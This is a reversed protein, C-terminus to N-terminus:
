RPRGRRGRRVADLVALTLLVGGLAAASGVLAVTRPATSAPAPAAIAAVGVAAPEGTGPTLVDPVDTVAAVPDVVGYGVRDNRGGAPAHATATIRDVVQRATLEPFRQRVLAATGAVFPAAFSTGQLPQGDLQDVLPIGPVPSLGVIDTGPAAVDVWPGNVTFPAPTGDAQVAGVTLVYDDWWAPSAVMTPAALGQPDNTSPCAGGSGDSNGAAAVVVVDRRDVAHRLAAGLARDGGLPQGAPGCAAESINIVTAGSDAAWVVASALSALDGFGSEGQEPAGAGTSRYKASYQRVALITAGPAVGAYSDTDGSSRAAVIGAVVSGHGDCDLTGDGDPNVYDGGARVTLRPNPNVGTDIVAVTQGVGTTLSWAQEYGLQARAPSTPPAAGPDGGSAATVCPDARESPGPAPPVSTPAPTDGLPPPTSLSGQAGQATAPAAGAALLLVLAGLAAAARAAASGRGRM